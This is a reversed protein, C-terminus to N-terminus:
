RGLMRRVGKHRARPARCGWMPARCRQVSGWVHCLVAQSGASAAGGRWQDGSPHPLGGRGGQAAQAEALRGQLLSLHRPVAQPRKPSRLARRRAAVAAPPPPPPPHDFQKGNPRVGRRGGGGRGASVCQLTLLAAHLDRVVLLLLPISPALRPAARRWTIVGGGGGGGGSQQLLLLALLPLPLPLPLLLLLRHQFLRSCDPLHEIRGLHTLPPVDDNRVRM